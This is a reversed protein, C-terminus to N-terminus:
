RYSKQRKARAGRGYPKKPLKRRIDNVLLTRDYQKFADTISEDKFYSVLGKAIATRSADAQGTVGGGRVTVEIDVNSAKDGVIKLPEMIKERLVEVPFFEVPLENITVIGKGKRTVARAVATKRKGSTLFVGKM